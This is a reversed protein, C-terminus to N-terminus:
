CFVNRGSRLSIEQYGGPRGLYTEPVSFTAEKKKGRERVRQGVLFSGGPVRQGRSKQGSIYLSLLLAWAWGPPSWVPSPRHPSALLLSAM